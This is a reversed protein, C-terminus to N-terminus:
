GDKRALPISLITEEEEIRIEPEVNLSRMESFIMPIGLGAKQVYHLKEMVDVLLPNRHVRIGIKMKEVTVSNPPMGPSRIELRDTFLFIRVSAGSITYDRHILANVVGERLAKETIPWYRKQKIGEISEPIPLNVYVNKCIDDVNSALTGKLIKRDLIEDAVSKGAFAVFVVEASPFIYAPEKGFLLIGGVTCVRKGDEESLIGTNILIHLTEEEDLGGIEIQRSDLFYKHLRSYDLDNPSSVLLGCEDYHLVGSAQYLRRLEERTAERNTSGARVYYTKRKNEEIYYPKDIGLPVKIAGVKFDGFFVEYYDVIISPKVVERSIEMVWEEARKRKLGCINGRDDVGLLIFGGQRNAMAVITKAVKDTSLDDQKFELGTGEGNKILEELETRQM